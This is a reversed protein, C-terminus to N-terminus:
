FFACTCRFRVCVLLVVLVARSVLYGRVFVGSVCVLCLCSLGCAAVAPVDRLRGCCMGTVRRIYIYIYTAALKLPRESSTLRAPSAKFANSTDFTTTPPTVCVCVQPTVCVCVELEAVM